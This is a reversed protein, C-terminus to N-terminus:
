ELLEKPVGCNEIMTQRLKNVFEERDEIPKYPEVEVPETAVIPPLTIEVEPDLKLAERFQDSYKFHKSQIVSLANGYEIEGVKIVDDIMHDTLGNNKLLERVKDNIQDLTLDNEMMKTIIDSNIGYETSLTIKETETATGFTVPGKSIDEVFKNNSKKLRDFEENLMKVEVVVSKSM